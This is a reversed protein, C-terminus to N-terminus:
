SGFDLSIRISNLFLMNLICTLLLDMAIRVAFDLGALLFIFVVDYLLIEDLLLNQITLGFYLSIRISDFFLM